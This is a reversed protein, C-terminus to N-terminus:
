AELFWDDETFSGPVEASPPPEIDDPGLSWDDEGFAGPVVVDAPVTGSFNFVANPLVGNAATLTGVYAVAGTGPVAVQYVGPSVLPLAAAEGDLALAPTVTPVPNGSLGTITVTLVRGTRGATATIGPASLDVAPPGDASFLPSFRLLM